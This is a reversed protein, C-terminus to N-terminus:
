KKNVPNLVIKPTEIKVEPIEIKVSDEQIENISEEKSEDINETEIEKTEEIEEAPPEVPVAAGIRVMLAAFKGTIVKGSKTIAEM